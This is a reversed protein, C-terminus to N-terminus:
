HAFRLPLDGPGHSGPLAAQVQRGHRERHDDLDFSQGASNTVRGTSLDTRSVYFDRYDRYMYDARFSARSRRVAPQRRRRIRHQEADDPRRWNAARRRAVDSQRHLPLNPQCTQTQAIPACGSTSEFWSCRASPKPTTTLTAGSRTSARAATSLVAVDAPQRGGVVLRRDSNSVPPWTSRSAPPSRGNARRRDSGLDVGLRPSFASDKAVM